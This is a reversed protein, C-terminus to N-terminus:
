KFKHALKNWLAPSLNDQMVQKVERTQNTNRTKDFAGALMVGVEGLNNQLGMQMDPFILPRWLAYIKTAHSPLLYIALQYLVEGLIEAVDPNDGMHAILNYRELAMDYNKHRLACKVGIALAHAKFIGQGRIQQIPMLLEDIAGWEGKAFMLELSELIAKQQEEVPLLSFVTILSAESM